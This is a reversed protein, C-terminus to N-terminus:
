VIYQKVQESHKKDIYVILHYNPDKYQNFLDVLPTFAEFYENFTRNFRIWSSRNIDLYATVYCLKM